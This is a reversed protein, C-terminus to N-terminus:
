ESSVTKVYFENSLFANGKQQTLGFRVPGFAKESPM